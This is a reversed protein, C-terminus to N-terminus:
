AAWTSALQFRYPCEPWWVTGTKWTQKTRSSFNKQSRDTSFLGTVGCPVSRQWDGCPLVLCAGSLDRKCLESCPSPFVHNKGRICSSCFGGRFHSCLYKRLYSVKLLWRPHELGLALLQTSLARIQARASCHLGLLKCLKCLGKFLSRETGKEWGVGLVDM